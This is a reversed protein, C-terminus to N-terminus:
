PSTQSTSYAAEVVFPNNLKIVIFGTIILQVIQITTIVSATIQMTTLQKLIVGELGLYCPDAYVFVLSTNKDSSDNEPVPHCNDTEKLVLNNPDCSCSMPLSGASILKPLSTNSLFLESRDPPDLFSTDNSNVLAFSTNYWDKASWLGCCKLDTHVRDWCAKSSNEDYYSYM